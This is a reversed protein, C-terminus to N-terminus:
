LGYLQLTEAVMRDPGFRRAVFGPGAAAFAQRRQPDDLLTRLADALADAGPQDVFLGTVGPDLAERAGGGGSVVVPTGIAQAEIVVNPTGEWRSALLLLDFASLALASEKTPPALRVRDGIGAQSLRRELEPRMPGAGFLLGHVEERQRAVRLLADIWLDPRKEASLRFMGGVLLAQAPVGHRERFAQIQAPAARTAESPDLGNYLIRFRDPQLGLWDAYDEAGGHSNNIFLAERRTAMALYAPRMLPLLIYPFHRPSVNRGALIV